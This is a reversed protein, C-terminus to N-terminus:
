DESEGKRFPTEVIVVDETPEAEDSSQGESNGTENETPTEYVEKKINMRQLAGEVRDNVRDLARIIKHLYEFDASNQVVVM